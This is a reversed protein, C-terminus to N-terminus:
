AAPPIAPGGAPPAASNVGAVSPDDDLPAVDFQEPVPEATLTLETVEAPCNVRIPAIVTGIGRNTYLWTNAVRYLGQDYKRGLYPLTYARRPQRLRVQGGHTHGSLQLAIRPNNAYIDVLDPEHMLLVVPADGPAQELAHELDARGVWGDDLGALYLAGGGLPISQNHLLSLGASRIGARVVAPNSWHDHNGLTAFVGDRANLRALVPELDHIAGAAHSVFDGTLVIADPKLSNALEVAQRIFGLRTFPYLHLDSLQVIRYGDMAAGLNPIPITVRDLALESGVVRSALSRNVLQRGAAAEETGQARSRSSRRPWNFFRNTM